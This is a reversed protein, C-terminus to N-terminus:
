SHSNSREQVAAQQMKRGMLASYDIYVSFYIKILTFIAIFIKGAGFVLFMSGIIVTFQQIFIRGYPEFMVTMLSSTKYRGSVIFEQMNKYGYGIMFLAIMLGADISLYKDPHLLFSTLHIDIASGITTVGLFIGMQVSVFIGYHLIFFLIIFISGVWRKPVSTFGNEASSAVSSIILKLITFIGVLITEFSYVAFVEWAQWNLFWVGYVPLLNAIILLWDSQTLRKRSLKVVKIQVLIPM